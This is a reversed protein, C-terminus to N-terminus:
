GRFFSASQIEDFGIRQCPGEADVFEGQGGKFRREKEIEIFLLRHFFDRCEPHQREISIPQFPPSPPQQLSQGLYVFISAKHHLSTECTPPPDRGRWSSGVITMAM